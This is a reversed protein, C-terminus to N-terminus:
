ARAGRSRPRPPFQQRMNALITGIEDEESAIRERLAADEHERVEAQARRQTREADARARPGLEDGPIAKSILWFLWSLPDRQEAPELDRRMGARYRDVHDLVQQVSWGREILRHRIVADCVQGIHRGGIWVTDTRDNSHFHIHHPRTRPTRLLRPLRSVLQAAFQQVELTRGRQTEARKASEESAKQRSAGARRASQARKPSNKKVHSIKNVTESLPLPTGEVSSPITLARTSAVTRQERAGLARATALEQLTLRNRGRACEIVFGLRSLFRMIRKVTAEAYGIASAVTAHSVAVDRGTITDAATAWQVAAALVTDAGAVRLRRRLAEVDPLTLAFELAHLWEAPRCVPIAAYVGDQPALVLGRRRNRRAGRAAKAPHTSATLRATRAENQGAPHTQPVIFRGGPDLNLM